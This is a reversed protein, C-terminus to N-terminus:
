CTHQKSVRLVKGTKLFDLGLGNRSFKSGVHSWYM